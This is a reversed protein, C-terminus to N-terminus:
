ECDCPVTSAVALFIFYFLFQSALIKSIPFLFVLNNCIMYSCSTPREWIRSIQVSIIGKKLLLNQYSTSSRLSSLHRQIVETAYYEWYLIPILVWNAELVKRKRDAWLNWTRLWNVPRCIDTLVLYTLNFIYHCIVVSSMVLWM